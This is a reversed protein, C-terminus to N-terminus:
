DTELVGAPTIGFEVDDFGTGYSIQIAYEGPLLVGLRIEFEGSTYQYVTGPPDLAVFVVPGVERSFSNIWVPGLGTIEGYNGHITIEGSEPDQTVSTIVVYDDEVPTVQVPIIQAATNTTSAFLGLLTGFLIATLSVKRFLSMHM